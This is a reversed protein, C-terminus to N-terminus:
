SADKRPGFFTRKALYLDLANNFLRKSFFRRALNEMGFPVYSFSKSELFYFGPDVFLDDKEKVCIVKFNPTVPCEPGMALIDLNKADKHPELFEKAIKEFGGVSSLRILLTFRASIKESSLFKGDVTELLFSPSPSALFEKETKLRCIEYVYFSGLLGFLFASALALRRRKRKLVPNM